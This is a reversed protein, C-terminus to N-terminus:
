FYKLSIKFRSQFLLFLFFSLWFGKERKRALPGSRRGMEGGRGLMGKGRKRGQKGVGAWSAAAWALCCAHGGREMRESVGQGAGQAVSQGTGSPLSERDGGISSVGAGRCRCLEKKRKEKTSDLCTM